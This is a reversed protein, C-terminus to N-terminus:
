LFMRRQIDGQFDARRSIKQFDEFVKPELILEGQNKVWFEKGWFPNGWGVFFPRMFLWSVSTMDGIYGPPIEPRFKEYLGYAKEALEKV